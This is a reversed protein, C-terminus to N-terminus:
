AAVWYGRLYIDRGNSTQWEGRQWKILGRVELSRVVSGATANARRTRLGLIQAADTACFVCPGSAIAELLKAQNATLKRATNKTTTMM